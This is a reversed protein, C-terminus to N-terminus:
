FASPFSRDVCLLEPTASHNVLPPLIEFIAGGRRRWPHLQWLLLEYKAVDALEGQQAQQHLGHPSSIDSDSSFWRSTITPDEGDCLLTNHTPLLRHHILLLNSPFALSMLMLLLLALGAKNEGTAMSPCSHVYTDKEERRIRDSEKTIWTSTYISVSPTM